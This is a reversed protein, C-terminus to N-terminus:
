YSEESQAGARECAERLVLVESIVNIAEGVSVREEREVLINEVSHGGDRARMSVSRPAVEERHVIGGAAM